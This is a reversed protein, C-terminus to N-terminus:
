PVSQWAPELDDASTTLRKPGSGNASMVYLGSLTGRLTMRSFLIKTGDPSWAPRSNYAGNNLKAPQRTLSRQSSGDANMVYISANYDRRSTFAIQKGNPSWAPKYDAANNGPLANHTLRRQGSGDANMVYIESNYKGDRNSTFAIKKGDPSWAAEDDFAAVHTLRRQGSGDANMVFIDFNGNLNRTFAIKV